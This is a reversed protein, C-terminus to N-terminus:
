NDTRDLQSALIAQRHAIARSRKRAPITARQASNTILDYATALVVPPEDCALWEEPSAFRTDHQM